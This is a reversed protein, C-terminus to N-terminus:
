TVMPVCPFPPPNPNFVRLVVVQVMRLIEQQELLVYTFTYTSSNLTATIITLQCMYLIYACTQWSLSTYTYESNAGSQPEEGEGEKDEEVERKGEKRVWQKGRGERWGGEIWGERWGGEMWRERRGRGGQGKRRQRGEERRGGHLDLSRCWLLQHEGDGDQLVERRLIVDSCDGIAPQPCLTDCWDGEFVEDKWLNVGRM